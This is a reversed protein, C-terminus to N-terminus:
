GPALGSQSLKVTFEVVPRPNRCSYLHVRCSFPQIRCSSPQIQCSFLSNSLQVLIEVVLCTFPIVSSSDKGEIDIDPLNSKMSQPQFNRLPGTSFNDTDQNQQFLLFARDDAAALSAFYAFLPVERCCRNPQWDSDHRGRGGRSNHRQALCITVVDERSWIVKVPRGIAKSIEVGEEVFDREGRRGFGGGLFLPHVKSRQFFVRRLPACPYLIHGM